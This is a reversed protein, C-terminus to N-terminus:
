TLLGKAVLGARVRSIRVGQNKTLPAMGTVQTPTGGRHHLAIVRGADDLVPSGSSGPQTDTMYQVHQDTVDSIMNRVFGIRKHQAAPHQIVYAREGKQPTPPNALDIAPWAPDMNAVRVVAWDDAHDGQISAPDGARSVVPLLAGSPDVDFGFDAWVETAQQHQPFLVHENTLVLDPGIRFGTGYFSMGASKVRLLCVAPLLMYLRQLTAILNPLQGAPMTLDDTFLLAEPQTITPDFDVPEASVICDQDDILATLFPAHPSRPHRNRAETVMDRTTGQIATQQLLFYWLQRPTLNPQVDLPDVGFRQAFTIADFPVPFMGAIVRWLEQGDPKHFPFPSEGLISM